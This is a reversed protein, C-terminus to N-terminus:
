NYNNWTLLTKIILLILMIAVGLVLIYSITRNFSIFIESIISDSNENIKASQLEKAEEFRTYKEKAEIFQHGFKDMLNIYSLKKYGETTNFLNLETRADLLSKIRSIREGGYHTYDTYKYIECGTPLYVKGSTTITMAFIRGRCDVIIRIPYLLYLYLIGDTLKIFYNQRPIEKYTCGVDSNNKLLNSMCKSVNANYDELFSNCITVRDQTKCLSNKTAENPILLFRTGNEYYTTTPMDLIYLKDNEEMPLPIFEAMNFGRKRIVPLVVSVTLHTSNFDTYTKIFKNRSMTIINPLSLEPELMKNIKRLTDSFENYDIVEFLRSDLDGYHIDNLKIQMREHSQAAFSIVNIANFFNMLAHINKTNNNIASQFERFSRDNQESVEKILHISAMSINAAHDIIELNGHIEDRISKIASSKFMMGAWLSVISIGLVLPITVIFRKGRSLNKLNLADTMIETNIENTARKFYSCLPNIGDECIRNLTDICEKLVETTNIYEAINLTHQIEWKQESLHLIGDEKVFFQKAGVYHTFIAMFILIKQM